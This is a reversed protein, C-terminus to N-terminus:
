YFHRRRWGRSEIPAAHADSKGPAQRFRGEKNEYRVDPAGPEDELVRSMAKELAEGARHPQKDQDADENYLTAVAFSFM